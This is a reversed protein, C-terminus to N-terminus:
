RAIPARLSLECGRSSRPGAALLGCRAQLASMAATTGAQKVALVFWGLAGIVPLAVVLVLLVVPLGLVGLLLASMLVLAALGSPRSASLLASTFAPAAVDAPTSRRAKAMEIRGNNVVSSLLSAIPNGSGARKCCKGTLRRRQWLPM